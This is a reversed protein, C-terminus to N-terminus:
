IGRNATRRLTVGHATRDVDARVRAQFWGVGNEHSASLLGTDYSGSQLNRQVAEVVAQDEDLLLESRALMADILEPDDTSSFYNYEILTRDTGVPVIREVNVGSSYVNIALNPYRFLWTGSSATSDRMDVTHVCLSEDIVSVKYTSAHVAANLDPHVLPIHYGELYNDVYNKWNCALTREVRRVFTLSPWDIVGGVHPLSGLDDLLSRSPSLAVFVLGGWVDASVTRLGGLDHCADAGPGFDRPSKLAGDWGFAWGHYRCVLNSISGTGDWAIPGARHPCVNVYARLQGDPSRVVLIPWGAMTNAVYSGPRAVEDATCFMVWNDAWVSHREIEGISPDSYWSAPLTLTM